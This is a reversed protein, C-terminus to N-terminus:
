EEMPLYSALAKPGGLDIKRESFLPNIPIERLSLIAPTARPGNGSPFSNGNPCKQVDGNQGSTFVKPCVRLLSSPQGFLSFSQLRVM